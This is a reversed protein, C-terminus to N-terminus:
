RRLISVFISLKGGDSKEGHVEVTAPVDHLAEPSMALPREM